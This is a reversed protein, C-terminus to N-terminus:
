GPRPQKDGKLPDEEWNCRGAHGSDNGALSHYEKATLLITQDVSAKVAECEALGEKEFCCHPMFMGGKNVTKIAM